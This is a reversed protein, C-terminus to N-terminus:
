PKLSKFLADAVNRESLHLYSDEMIKISSHNSIKQISKLDMGNLYFITIGSKRGVHSTVLEHRKKVIKVERNGQRRVMTFEGKIGAMKAILKLKENFVQNCPVKFVRGGKTQRDRRDELIKLVIPLLPVSTIKTDSIKSQYLKWFTYEGETVIDRWKLDVVDSFRQLTYCQTIFFCRIEDLIPDDLKLSAISDVENQTLVFISTRHETAKIRNFSSDSSHGYSFSYSAFCKLSKLYKVATNHVWGKYNFMFLSLENAFQENIDELKLKRKHQKEFELLLERLSTYRHMTRSKVNKTKWNIFCDYVEFFSLKREEEINGCAKAMMQKIDSDALSLNEKLTDYYDSLFEDRIQHLRSELKISRPCRTKVSQNKVDYDAPLVRLGTSEKMYKGNYTLSLYITTERPYYLSRSVKKGAKQQEKAKRSAASDVYCKDLNFKPNVTSKM